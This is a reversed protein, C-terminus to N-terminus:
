TGIAFWDVARSTNFSGGVVISCGTTTKSHVKIAGNDGSWNSGTTSYTVFVKPVSTFGASSYSISISSSGNINTSGYAFKFPLRAAALTGSQIDEAVHNHSSAAAGLNTRADAATAAGTGGNAVPVAVSTNGLGLANRAAAVTTQGTGGNAIPIAGDTNGLGFANRAAAVTTQGTGGKEIATVTGAGGIM